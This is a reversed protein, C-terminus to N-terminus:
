YCSVTIFEGEKKLQTVLKKKGENAKNDLEHLDKLSMEEDIKEGGDGLAL